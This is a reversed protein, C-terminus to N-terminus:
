DADSGGGFRGSNALQYLTAAAVAVLVLTFIALFLASRESLIRRALPAAFYAFGIIFAVGVLCYVALGVTGFYKYFTDFSPVLILVAFSLLSGVGQSTKSTM